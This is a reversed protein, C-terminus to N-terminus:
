AVEKCPAKVGATMWAMAARLGRGIMKGKDLGTLSESHENWSATSFVSPWTKNAEPEGNGSSLYPLVVRYGPWPLLIYIKGPENGDTSWQCLESM